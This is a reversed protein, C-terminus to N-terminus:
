SARMPCTSLKSTRSFGRMHTTAPNYPESCLHLARLSIIVFLQWKRVYGLVMVFVNCYVMSIM